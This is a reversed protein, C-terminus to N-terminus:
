SGQFFQSVWGGAPSNCKTCAAMRAALGCLEWGQINLTVSSVISTYASVLRLMPAISGFKRSIVIPTPQASSFRSIAAKIDGLKLFVYEQQAM